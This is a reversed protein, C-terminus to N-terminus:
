ENGALAALVTPKIKAATLGCQELMYAYDGPHPFVDPIGIKCLPPHERRTALYTAVSDGLGGIEFHEEVTVILKAQMLRPELISLDLPKLSAIDYVACTLAEKKFARSVRMCEHLVAGTGLFVIDDGDKLLEPVGPQYAYDGKHVGPTGDIGTLRLYAPGPYAALDELVKAEEVCDAPSLVRMGPITKMLSIDELGYHTNGQSGLTMGSGLAVVKVNQHTYGVVTRVAEYARMSVFPSFSTIFVNYGDQALGAAIATMNQEAIGINFFRDPFREQYGGLNASSAVDAALVVVDPHDAALQELMPGFAKRMGMRTWAMIHEPTYEIM